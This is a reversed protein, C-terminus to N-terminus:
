KAQSAATLAAIDLKKMQFMAPITHAPNAELLTNLNHPVVQWSIGFKDKVWGCMSEEGGNATLEAWFYDIEAQDQCSVMLSVAENFQFAHNTTSDSAAFWQGALQFDSFMVNGEVEPEMGAPYRVMEGPASPQDPGLTAARGFVSRYRESAEEAQGAVTGVFMFAPILPPRPYGEPDTLILQWSYGYRDQVWGFRESFFYKDLPMMAKGGELLREWIQDIRERAKPDRSPDFNVITSIAPNIEFGPGANMAEYDCGLIQFDVIQMDGTPMGPLLHTSTIRSDPFVSTYFEAAELAQTDFWLCQMIKQPQHQM